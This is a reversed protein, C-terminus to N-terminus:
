KHKSKKKKKSAKSKSKSKKKRRHKEEESSSDSSDSYADSDSSSDKKAKRKKRRKHKKKKKRHSEVSSDSDSSSSDSSSSDDESSTQKSKKKPKVPEADVNIIEDSDIKARKTALLTSRDDEESESDSASYDPEFNAEDIVSRKRDSVLKPNKRQPKTTPENSPTSEKPDDKPTNSASEKEKSRKKSAREKKHKKDKRKKREHSKSREKKRKKTLPEERVPKKVPLLPTKVEEVAEALKRQKLPPTRAQREPKRSEHVRPPPDEHRSRERKRDSSEVFVKREPNPIIPENDLTLSVRRAEAKSKAELKAKAADEIKEGLREKVSLRTPSLQLNKFKSKATKKLPESSLEVNRQNKDVNIIVNMSKRSEREPEPELVKPEPNQYLAKRSESIKKIEIPRIANIAKQFIANEARKLVETTVLKKGDESEGGGNNVADGSPREPTASKEEEEEESPKEDREWKSLEPLPAMFEEKKPSESNAVAVVPQPSAPQPQQEEAKSESHTTTIETEDVVGAYLSAESPKEQEEEATTTTAASAAAENEERKPKVEDAVKAEELVATAAAAMVVVKSEEVEAAKSEEVAPQSEELTVKTTEEVDDKPEEKIKVIMTSSSVVAAAAEKLMKKERKKKRKKEKEESDKKKKKEKNIKKDKKRQSDESERAQKAGRNREPTYDRKPSSSSIGRHQKGRRRDYSDYRDLRRSKDDKYRDKDHNDRRDRRPRDDRSRDDDHRRDREHLSRSSLTVSDADRDKSPAREKPPLLDVGPPALDYYGETGPPAVDDFRKAAPPALPLLRGTPMSTAPAYRNYSDYYNKRDPQSPSLGPPAPPPLSAPPSITHHHHQQQHHPHSSSSSSSQTKYRPGRDATDAYYSASTSYPERSRHREREKHDREKHYRPPSRAPSRYPAPKGKRKRPLTARPSQSRSYSRSRSISFSGSRSRRKKPTRSRTRHSPPPSRSNVARRKPPSRSRSAPRRVPSRSRSRSYSRSRSRSRTRRSSRHKGMRRDREDKERLMRNFIELPDDIVGPTGNHMGRGMGPPPPQMGRYGVQMDWKSPVHSRYRNHMGRMPRPPGSYGRPPQSPRYPQQAYAPARSDYRQATPPPPPPAYGHPPPPAATPPEAYMPMRPPAMYPNPLLAPAHGVPPPAPYAAREDGPPYPLLAPAPHLHPEDVTPTGARDETSRRINPDYHVPAPMYRGDATSASPHGSPPAQYSSKPYDSNPPSLSRRRSPPRIGAERSSSSSSHYAASRDRTNDRSFSRRREKSFKGYDEESSSERWSHDSVKKPLLPPETGPPPPVEAEDEGIKLDGTEETATTAKEYSPSAEGAAKDAEKVEGLAQSSNAQTPAVAQEASLKESVSPELKSLPPPKYVVRKAYGTENKFNLVANRLYRNPILSEPLVDKENCDPCEHEESELLFTRICEDCFSNGCCPIMVADTLLDKCINCLLDEPIEPKEVAPEPDHSFPPKEKKGEKYAQHDIAPVAYTGGPTMMAGPVTPGDVPVMFSRPIGTSKKIEIPESGIGLPCHKIWHGPQHCKYCRYNPPVEGTQNQGRIKMYNSPDYDQTSQTIMARIKDEESGDLRTLDVSKGLTGEDKTTNFTPAEAREWTRKQQSTLPVRAVILSTNKAILINDDTYDEKTQANTIQLDFDTNKGIRKQHFIAKKLDAVSIHLGDFSVTDFDLTSKFKYHVSM